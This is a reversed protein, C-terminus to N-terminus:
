ASEAKKRTTTRRKPAVTGAASGDADSTADTPAAAANSRSTRRKPAAKAGADTAAASGEDTAAPTEAKRRTTRRKPVGRGCRRAGDGTPEDHGRGAGDRGEQPDSSAEAGTSGRDAVDPTASRRRRRSEAASAAPASTTAGEDRPAGQRPAGKPSQALQAGSCRRSSKPSRAGRSARGSPRRDTRATSGSRVRRGIRALPHGTRGRGALPAGRRASGAASTRTATSAAVGGGGRGAGYRERDVAANYGARGGRPGGRGGQGGRQGGRGQQGRRQEAILYEPIAPEDFDEEDDRRGSRAGAELEAVGLQSDWVSGFPTPRPGRPLRRSRSRTRM